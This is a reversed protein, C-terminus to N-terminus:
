KQPKFFTGADEGDMVMEISQYDSGLAIVGAIGSLGVLDMASVKTQMGGTGRKSGSGGAGARMDETIEEVFSIRQASANERPDGDYLGNVDSLILLIDADVLVAVQASLSDNDGFTGNHLIEKTSVTDNENVVPVIKRKMLANFTNTINERIKPDDFDDKTLLVQGVTYSYEAFSRSYVNMLECQGVAAVAQKDGMDTPKADLKLCGVGVGIAGSSVLIVEKGQNMLGAITRAIRDINRFNVRGNEHTVTSTGVKIVVRKADPIM